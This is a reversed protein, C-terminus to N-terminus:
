FFNFIELFFIIIILWNILCCKILFRFNILYTFLYAKSKGPHPFLPYVGSWNKLIRIIYVCSISNNTKEDM